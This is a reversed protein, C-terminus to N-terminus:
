EEGEPAHAFIWLVVFAIVGIGVFFVALVSLAGAGDAAVPTAFRVQQLHVRVGSTARRARLYSM